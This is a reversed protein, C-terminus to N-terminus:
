KVEPLPDNRFAGSMSRGGLLGEESDLPLRPDPEHSVRLLWLSGPFFPLLGLSLSPLTPSCRCPAPLTVPRPLTPLAHHDSEDFLSEQGSGLQTVKLEEGRQHFVFQICRLPSDRSYFPMIYARHKWPPGKFVLWVKWPLDRQEGAESSIRIGQGWIALPLPNQSSSPCLPQRARSCRLLEERCQSRAERGDLSTAVESGLSLGNWAMDLCREREVAWPHSQREKNDWLWGSSDKM